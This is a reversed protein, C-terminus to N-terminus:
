SKNAMGKLSDLRTLAIKKKEKKFDMRYNVWEMRPVAHDWLLIPYTVNTQNHHHIIHGKKITDPLEAEAAM